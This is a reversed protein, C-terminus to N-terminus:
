DDIGLVFQKYSHPSFIIEFNEDTLRNHIYLSDTRGQKFQEMAEAGITSDPDPLSDDEEALVGDGAYYLLTRSKTPSKDYGDEFFEDPSLEIFDDSEPVYEEQVEKYKSYDESNFNIIDDPTTTEEDEDPFEDLPIGSLTPQNKAKIHRYLASAAVGAGMGSVFTLIYLVIQKKM